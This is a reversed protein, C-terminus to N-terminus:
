LKFIKNATNAWAINIDAGNPTIPLGTATDILWILRSTSETGTHKYGILAESRDGTVSTLTVDNADAVGNTVTKGALSGSVAVRAGSPIDDLNDLVTLNVAYGGSTYAGNGTSGSLEFTNATVNAVTWVGNAATNGGVNSIAVIDGNSFGHSNSTIVIPSANTAGTILKAFDDLDALIVRIDDTDFDISGDLFGQRGKEFLANGM